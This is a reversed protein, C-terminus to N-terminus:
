RAARGGSSLGRIARSNRECRLRAAGPHRVPQAACRWGPAKTPHLALPQRGRGQVAPGPLSFAAEAGQLRASAPTLGRASRLLLSNASQRHQKQWETFSRLAEVPVRRLPHRLQPFEPHRSMLFKFAKNLESKLIGIETLESTSEQNMKMQSRFASAIGRQATHRM